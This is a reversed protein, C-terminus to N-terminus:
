AGPRAANRTFFMGLGKMTMVVEGHQNLVECLSRVVGRDPKSRSPITELVTYRLSLTDGPRVPRLWRLEDVGPSGLGACEHLLGDWCLRMLMAGTHWGSAILGGYVSQTAAEEDTHFPQPDYERAFALISERTVVRNGMEFVQGPRFDEFYRPM